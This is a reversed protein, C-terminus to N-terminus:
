TNDIRPSDYRVANCNWFEMFFVLDYASVVNLRSKGFCVLGLMTGTHLMLVLTTCATPRTWQPNHHLCVCAFLGEDVANLTCNFDSLTFKSLSSDQRAGYRDRAGFDVYTVPLIELTPAPRPAHSPYHLAWTGLLFLSWFILSFINFAHTGSKFVRYHEHIEHVSQVLVFLTCFSWVEWLIHATHLYYM